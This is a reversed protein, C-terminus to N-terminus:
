RRKGYLASEGLMEEIRLLENYKSVRDSRNPAGTKIYGCNRAVALHAIYNDETEGSRHSVITKYGNNMAYDMADLTETITGIQNLKILVANAIEPIAKELISKNTVFIDDGVIMIKEKMRSTMLRWGDWDNEALGDEISIVPYGSVIDEWYGIMEEPSLNRSEAKLRYKGDDFFESAAADLAIAVEGGPQFGSEKIAEVLLDLAERNSSLMPAFGGEDGFGCGLNKQKLLSKLVHFIEAGYRLAEGFTSAGIPVIMFEQIDLNNVAHAGGNIVNFMPCPMLRSNPSGMYRFLPLGCEEASAKAVALSTGLIANAGLNTKNPTGDLDILLRDIETQMASEFGILENAIHTNVNEVAKLVGKGNYRSKDKDRLECAERTGTSAGSPVSARGTIEGSDTDITVEVEVTPFGRSDLIERGYIDIIEGM